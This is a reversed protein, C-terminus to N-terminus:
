EFVKSVFLDNIITLGTVKFLGKILCSSCISYKNALLACGHVGEINKLLVEYLSNTKEELNGKALSKKMKVGPVSRFCLPFAAKTAALM